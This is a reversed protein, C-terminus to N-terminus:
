PTAVAKSSPKSRAAPSDRVTVRDTGNDAGAGSPNPMSAAPTYGTSTLAFPRGPSSM